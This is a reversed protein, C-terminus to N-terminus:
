QFLCSSQSKHKPIKYMHGMGVIWFVLSCTFQALSALNPRINYTDPGQSLLPSLCHLLYIQWSIAIQHDERRHRSDDWCEAGPVASYMGFWLDLDTLLVCVFVVTHRCGFNPPWVPSAALRTGHFGRIGRVLVATALARSSIHLCIILCGSAYM